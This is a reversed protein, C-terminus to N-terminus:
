GQAKWVLFQKLDPEITRVRDAVTDVVSMMLKLVAQPKSRQLQAMDRRSIEVVTSFAEATASCMRPGSRLLAAEGLSAPSSLVSLSIERGDPTRVALRIRGDAIVYLSDGIMNEVFLPTGPPVDKVQAISGIIQLGTDTFNRFLETARLAQVVDVTSAPM